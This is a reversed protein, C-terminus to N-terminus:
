LITIIMKFHRHCIKKLNARYFTGLTSMLIAFFYNSLSKGERQKSTGFVHFKVEPPTCFGSVLILILTMEPSSAEHFVSKETM